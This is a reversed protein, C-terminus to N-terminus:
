YLANLSSLCVPFTSSCSCPFYSRRKERRLANLFSSIEKGRQFANAEFSFLGRTFKIIWYCIRLSRSILESIDDDLFVTGTDRLRYSTLLRDEASVQRWIAFQSTMLHLFIIKEKQYLCHAFVPPQELQWTSKHDVRHSLYQHCTRESSCLNNNIQLVHRSHTTDTQHYSLILHRETKAIEKATKRYHVYCEPKHKNLLLIM